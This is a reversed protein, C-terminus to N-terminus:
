SYGRVYRKTFIHICKQLYKGPLIITPEYTICINKRLLDPLHNELTATGTKIGVLLIHASCEQQEVDRGVSAM